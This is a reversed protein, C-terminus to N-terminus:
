RRAAAETAAPLYMPLLTYTISMRPKPMLLNPYAAPVPCSVAGKCSRVAGKCGRAAGQLEEVRRLQGKCGEVRRLQGKCGEVRVGGQLASM